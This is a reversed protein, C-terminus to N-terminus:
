DGDENPGTIGYLGKAVGEPDRPEIVLFIFAEADELTLFGGVLGYREGPQIGEPVYDVNWPYDGSETVLPSTM